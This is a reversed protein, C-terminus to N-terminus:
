KYVITMSYIKIAASSTLWLTKNSGTPTLTVDTETGNLTYAAVDNDSSDGKAQATKLRFTHTGTQSNLKVSQINGPATIKVYADSYNSSGGFKFYTNSGVGNMECTIKEKSISKPSGTSAGSAGALDSTAFEVTVPGATTFSAIEGFSYSEGRKVFSRYYYKTGPSLNKITVGAIIFSGDGYVDNEKYPATNSSSPTEDCQADTSYLIGFELGTKDWSSYDFSVAFDAVNEKPYGTKMKLTLVIEKVKFSKTETYTTTGDIVLAVRYYYNIGPRLSIETVSFNGQANIEKTKTVSEEFNESTSWQFTLTSPYRELSASSINVSGTFTVKGNSGDPYTADNVTIDSVSPKGALTTFSAIEGFSYSEGRKVFSRYYYKTSPSLNNITVGAIIFSGDGYVDNEKYPATNSSSPTEDCQADTSYLIGFELGTKDWSSYDFSVAFDAVNEKPYGTKMKLTLVIEKVKFSKTETYTTTGDIVLAVRYYYNIGPRLSIETVSFNGQANIEKTKTVSEEFNESTSWQFTLLPSYAEVLSTPIKASGTFTAKGNGGDPYTADNVTIYELTIENKFSLSAKAYDKKNDGYTAVAKYWVTSNEEIDTINTSFVYGNESQEPTVALETWESADESSAYAVSLSFGEPLADVTGSITVGEISIEGASLTVTLDKTTFNSSEGYVPSSEKSALTYTRYYYTTGLLLGDISVSYAGKDNSKAVVKTANNFDSNDAYEIGAEATASVDAGLELTGSFTAGTYDVEVSTTIELKEDKPAVPGDKKCSTSLLTGTVLLATCLLKSITLEIRKM